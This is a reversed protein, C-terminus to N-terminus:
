GQAAAQEGFHIFSSEDQIIVSRRSARQRFGVADKLVDFFNQMGYRFDFVSRAAGTQLKAESGDGFGVPAVKGDPQFAVAAASDIFDDGVDPGLDFLRFGCCFYFEDLHQLVHDAVEGAGGLGDDYFKKRLIGLKESIRSRLDGISDAFDLNPFSM